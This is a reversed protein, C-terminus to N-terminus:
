HSVFPHSSVVRSCPQRNRAPRRDACMMELADLPCNEIKSSTLESLPERFITGPNRWKSSDFPIKGAIFNTNRSSLLPVFLFLTSSPQKGHDSLKCVRDDRCGVRIQFKFRLIERSLLLYSTVSHIWGLGVESRTVDDIMVVDDRILKYRIQDPALGTSRM